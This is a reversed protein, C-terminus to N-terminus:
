FVRKAEAKTVAGGLDPRTEPGEIPRIGHISRRAAEPDSYYVCSQVDPYGMLDKQCRARKAAAAGAHGDHVTAPAAENHIPVATHQGEVTKCGCVGKLMHYMLMGLILSIICYMIQDTGM